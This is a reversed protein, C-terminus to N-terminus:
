PVEKGNESINVASRASKNGNEYFEKLIGRLAARARSLRNKVTGVDIGLAESADRYSMENIDCMVVIERHHEALAGVASRVATIEESRLVAEEPTDATDAVPLPAENGDSDTVSLPADDVRRRLFDTVTNKAVTCIFAGVSGRESYTDARQWVKIFTEQTADAADEANKLKFYALSYIQKEYRSYLIGFAREDLRSILKMLEADSMKEYDRM